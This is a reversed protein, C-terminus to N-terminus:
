TFDYETFYRLPVHYLSVNFNNKKDTQKQSLKKITFPFLLWKESIELMYVFNAM